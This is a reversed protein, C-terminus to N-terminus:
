PKMGGCVEGMARTVAAEGRFFISKKKGPPPPQSM